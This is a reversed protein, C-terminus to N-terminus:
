VGEYADCGKCCKATAPSEHTLANDAFKKCPWCVGIPRDDDNLVGRQVKGIDGTTKNADLHDWVEQLESM